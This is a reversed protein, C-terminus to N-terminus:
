NQFRGIGFKQTYGRVRLSRGSSQRECRLHQKGLGRAIEETERLIGAHTPLRLPQEIGLKQDEAGVAAQACFVALGYSEAKMGSVPFDPQQHSLGRPLQLRLASCGEGARAGIGAVAARLAGRAHHVRQGVAIIRGHHQAPEHTRQGRAFAHQANGGAVFAQRRHHHGQGRRTGLGCDQNGAAYREQGLLALVRALHLGDTCPKRLM